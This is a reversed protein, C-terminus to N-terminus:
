LTGTELEEGQHQIAAIPTGRRSEITEAMSRITPQQFVAIVPLKVGLRAAVRVVVTMALLSHGGLEFFNETVGVMPRGLV